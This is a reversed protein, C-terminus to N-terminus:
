SELDVISIQLDRSVMIVSREPIEEFGEGPERVDSAVLVARFSQGTRARRDNEKFRRVYLPGRVRVAMMTRGNTVIINGPGQPEGAKSLLGSVMALTDRLVRRSQSLPLNHDDVAGADHLYSLFLQFIHEAPTTGRINRRLFEPIHELVASKIADFQPVTGAQAFLWRRYRFPQTNHNGPHGEDSTAHMVIYDSSVSSLARFFDVAETPRPHRRLLVESGHVYGLGWCQQLGPALLVDRVPALADLLRKPENCVIGFLRSM